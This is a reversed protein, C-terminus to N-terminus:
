IEKKKLLILGVGLLSISAIISSTAVISGGCGLKALLGQSSEGGNDNTDPNLDCLADIDAKFRTLALSVKKQSTEKNVDEVFKSYKEEAASQNAKSMLSKKSDMYTKGESIANAKADVLAQNEEAISLISEIRTKAEDFAEDVEEKATMEAARDKFKSLAEQIYAWNTGTYDEENKAAVMADLEDSKQQIYTQLEKAETFDFAKTEDYESAKAILNFNYQIVGYNAGLSTYDIIFTQGAKIHVDYNYFTDDKSAHGEKLIPKTEDIMAFGDVDLAYSKLVTHTAWDSIEKESTNVRVITLHTNKNAKIAIIADDNKGCRMQWRQMGANNQGADGNYLADNAAGVGEGTHTNFPQIDDISGHGLTIDLLGTELTQYNNAITQTVLDPYHGTYSNFDFIASNRAEEDYNASNFTFTLTIGLNANLAQTTGFVYYAIDGAKLNYIIKAGDAEIHAVTDKEASPQINFEAIQATKSGVNQYGWIYNTAGNRWGTTVPDKNTAVLQTNKTAVFKFIVQSNLSYCIKGQIIGAGGIADFKNDGEFMSASEPLPEEGLVEGDDYTIYQFPHENGVKGTLLAADADALSYSDCRLRASEILMTNSDIETLNSFDHGNYKPFDHPVDDGLSQKFVLNPLLKTSITKDAACQYEIYLTDGAEVYIRGTVMARDIQRSCNTTYITKTKGTGDKRYGSLTLGEVSSEETEDLGLTIICAENTKIELTCAKGNKLVLGNTTLEYDSDKSGLNGASSSSYTSKTVSDNKFTFSAFNNETSAIGNGSSAVDEILKTSSLEDASLEVYKSLTFTPFTWQMNRYGSVSAPSRLEWVITDGSAVFTKNLAINSSYNGSVCRTSSVTSYSNEEAGKKYFTIYMDALWGSVNTSNATFFMDEKATFYCILGDNNRSFMQIGTSEHFVCCDDTDKVNYKFETESTYTVNTFKNIAGEGANGHRIGYSYQGISSALETTENNESYAKAYDALLDKLSITESWIESEGKAQETKHSIGYIASAALFSIALALTSKYLNNKM